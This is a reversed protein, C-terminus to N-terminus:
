NCARNHLARRGSILEAFIRGRTNEAWYFAEDLKGIMFACRTAGEYAEIRPIDFEKGEFFHERESASLRNRQDELLDIAKIYWKYATEYEKMGEYSLGLGIWESIIFLTEKAEENKERDRDFQKAAEKFDKKKLYYRGLRIPHNQKTYIEFAEKDRDLALFADGLNGEPFNYPVGIQKDLAIAKESYDIVKRYDGLIMSAKGISGIAAGIPQKNGLKQFISLAAEWKQIAGRFDSVNYLKQGENFLQTAEDWEEQSAGAHSYPAILMLFVTLCFVLRLSYRAM